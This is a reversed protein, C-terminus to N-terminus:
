FATISTSAIDGNVLLSSHANANSQLAGGSKGTTPQFTVNGSLGFGVGRGGCGGTTLISLIKFLDM